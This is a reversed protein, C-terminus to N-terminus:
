VEKPLLEPYIVEISAGLTARFYCNPCLGHKSMGGSQRHGCAQMFWKLGDEEFNFPKGDKALM